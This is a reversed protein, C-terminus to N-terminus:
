PDINTWYIKGDEETKEQINAAPGGGVVTKALISIQYSTFKKLDQVEFVRVDGGLREVKWKGSSAVQKYSLDFGIIKGNRKWKSPLKWALKVSTSTKFEVRFNLPAGTPKAPDMLLWAERESSWGGLNKVSLKFVYWLGNGTM